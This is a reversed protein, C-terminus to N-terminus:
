NFNSLIRMYDPPILQKRRPPPDFIDQMKKRYDQPFKNKLFGAIRPYDDIITFWKKLQGRQSPDLPYEKTLDREM